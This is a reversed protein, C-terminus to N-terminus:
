GPRSAALGPSRDSRLAAAARTPRRSAGHRWYWFLMVATSLLSFAHLFWIPGLPLSFVYVSHVANGVDAILLTTVSSSTLDRSRGAKVLM